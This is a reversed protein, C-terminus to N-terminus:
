GPQPPMQPPPPCDLDKMGMTDFFRCLRGVALWGEEGWIELDTEYQDLAAESTLGEVSAVPRLKVQLDAASPYVAQTSGTASCASATGLLAVILLSRMPFNPSRM